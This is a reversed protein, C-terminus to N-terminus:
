GPTWCLTKGNELNFTGGVRGKSKDSALRVNGFSQEKTKGVYGIVYRDSRVKVEGTFAGVSVAKVGDENCLDVYQLYLEKISVSDGPSSVLLKACARMVPTMAESLMCSKAETMITPIRMRDCPDGLKTNLLTRLFSPVEARLSKEFLQKAVPVKIAPVDIVVIRTDGDELPMNSTSNGMQVFHLMNPQSYPTHYKQHVTLTKATVWEKLRAYTQTKEQSLDKEELYVVVARAIEFNHGASSCLANGGDEVGSTFMVSLLEHFSSKGSNQPGVMFLYPLIQEPSQIVSAVWARLYDRGCTIGNARCWANEQVGDDLSLGIHEFVKDITPHDGGSINPEVAFQPARFNWLREGPYEGAFPLFSLTWPNDMAITKAPITLDGLKHQVSSAIDSWGCYHIWDSVNKMYWGLPDGNPSLVFRFTCDALRLLREDAESKDHKRKLKLEYGGARCVWGESATPSVLSISNDRNFVVEAKEPCSPFSEGLLAQLEVLGAADLQYVGRKVGTSVERISTLPCVGENIYTYNSSGEYKWTPEQLGNGFRTVRFAGGGVPTIFCNPTMPDAGRSSTEFSGLLPKGSSQREHFVNEIAKTHTHGMGIEEKWSFYYGQSAIDQLISRHEKTVKSSDWDVNATFNRSREPIVVNQIDKWGLTGGRKVLSFSRETSTNSWFWFMSGVCDVHQSLEYGLDTEIKALVRRANDAHEHHTAASPLDDANFFVYVHLGRGSTSRVMTIYPLTSLQDVLLNLKETSVTTTGEAHGDAVDIDLGVAISKRTEWNWWTTGVRTVRKAPDFTITWDAFYPDTGAKHPWRVNSWAEGDELWEGPRDGCSTGRTTMLQTELAPSWLPILFPSAPERAGLFRSIATRIKM